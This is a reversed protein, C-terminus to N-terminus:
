VHAFTNQVFKKDHCNHQTITSRQNVPVLVCMVSTKAIRPTHSLDAWLSTAQLFLRFVISYHVFEM